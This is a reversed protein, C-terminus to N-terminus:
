VTIHLESMKKNYKINWAEENYISNKYNHKSINYDPMSILPGQQMLNANESVKRKIFESARMRQEPPLTMESDLVTWFAFLLQAYDSYIKAKDDWSFVKVLGNFISIFASGALLSVNIGLVVWQNGLPGLTLTLASLVTMISGILLSLVLVARVKRDYRGATDEYVFSTEELKQQWLKIITTNENTWGRSSRKRPATQDPTNEEPATQDPTNEEEM